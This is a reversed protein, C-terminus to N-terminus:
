FDELSRLIGQIIGSLGGFEGFSRSSDRFTRWVGCFERFVGQFDGMSGSYEWFLGALSICPVEPPICKQHTNESYQESSLILYSLIHLTKRDWPTAGPAM